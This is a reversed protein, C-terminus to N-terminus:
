DKISSNKNAITNNRWKIFCTIIIVTILFFITSDFIHNLPGGSRGIGSYLMLIFFNTVFFIIAKILYLKGSQLINFIIIAFFTLYFSLFIIDKNPIFFTLMAILLCLIKKKQLSDKSRLFIIAFGIFNIIMIAIIASYDKDNFFSILREQDWSASAILLIPALCISLIFELIKSTTKTFINTAIVLFINTIIAFQSLLPFDLKTNVFNYFNIALYIKLTDLFLQKFFTFNLKKIIQASNSKISKM